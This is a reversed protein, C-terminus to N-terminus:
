ADDLLESFHELLDEVELHAEAHALAEEPALPVIGESGSWGNQGYPRAFPSHSGGHGEMFFSGSRGRYLVADWYTFDGRSIGVRSGIEGICTATETDFVTGNM